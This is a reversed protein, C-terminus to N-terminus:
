LKVMESIISKAEILMGKRLEEVAEKVITDYIDVYVGSRYHKTGYKNIYWALGKAENIKGKETQSTFMGRRDMWDYLARGFDSLGRQDFTTKNSKRTGRGKQLTSFWYPVLIKGELSGGEVIVLKRLSPSVPQGYYTRSERFIRNVVEDLQKKVNLMGM